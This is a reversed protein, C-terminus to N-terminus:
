MRNVVLSQPAYWRKKVKVVVVTRSALDSSTVPQPQAQAAAGAMLGLSTALAIHLRPSRPSVAFIRNTADSM